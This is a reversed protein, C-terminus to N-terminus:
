GAPKMMDNTWLDPPILRLFPFRERTSDYSPSECFARVVTRATLTAEVSGAPPQPRLAPVVFTRFISLATASPSRAAPLSQKAGFFRTYRQSRYRTLSYGTGHGTARSARRDIPQRLDGRSAVRASPAM